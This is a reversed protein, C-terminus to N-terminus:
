GPAPSLAAALSAQESRCRDRELDATQQAALLLDVVESQTRAPADNWYTMELVRVMRIRPGPCWQVHRDPEARLTHWTLDLTRQVLQSRVADPGGAAQVVAGVLCAGTVPHDAALNLDYATVVRGGGATSVTFWAGQVWGGRVVDAAQELLARIAHLEALRGSLADHRKLRRREARRERRGTRTPQDLPTIVTSM